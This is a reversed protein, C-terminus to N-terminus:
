KKIITLQKYTIEDIKEIKYPITNKFKKIPLLSYVPRKSKLGLVLAYSRMGFIIQSWNFLTKLDTDNIIEYNFERFIKLFKKYKSVNERPHLKFKIYINKNVKNEKLFLFFKKLALFEISKNIPELFYLYNRIRKKKDKNLKQISEELFNKKIKVLTKKFIKKAKILSKKDVVWVEDPLIIKGKYILGEKYLVWHDMVAIVKKKNKIALIRTRNEITSINSTGTIIVDSNKILNQLKTDTSFNPLTRKFIKKAPGQMKLLYKYKYNKVWQLILNASGADNCVIGVKKIKRGFM